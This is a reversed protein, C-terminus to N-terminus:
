VYITESTLDSFTPQNSATSQTADNGNGSSDTITAISGGVVATDNSDDGMRWYGKLNSTRDTDYSAALTLDTPVGGNYIKTVDATSLASNFIATESMLGKFRTYQPYNIVLDTNTYTASNTGTNVSSGDIYFTMASGSRTVILNQWNNLSESGVTNFVNAYGGLGNWFSFGGNQQYIRFGDTYSSSAGLHFLITNGGARTPKVWSSVTFDGNFVQSSLSTTATDDSGDFSAGWRNQFVAAASYENDFRIWSGNYYVVIDGENTSGFAKLYMEGNKARANSVLASQEADNIVKLNSM